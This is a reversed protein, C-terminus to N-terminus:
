RLSLDLLDIRSSRLRVTVPDQESPPPLPSNMSPGNFRIRGARAVMSQEEVHYWKDSSRLGSRHGSFPALGIIQPGVCPPGGHARHDADEGHEAQGPREDGLIELGGLLRE